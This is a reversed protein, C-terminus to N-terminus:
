TLATGPLILSTDTFTRYRETRRSRIVLEYSRAGPVPHWALRLTDRNRNFAQVVFPASPPSSPITTTGSVDEGAPTHVHLTYTVGPLVLFPSSLSPIFGYLGPSAPALEAAFERGGDPAIVEVTADSVPEDDTLSSTTNTTSGTRARAVLVQQTSSSADLVAHVVLRPQAAPTPDELDRCGGVALATGLALGAIRTLM